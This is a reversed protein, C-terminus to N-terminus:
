VSRGIPASSGDLLRTIVETAQEIDVAHGAIVDSYLFAEGIRVIVYALTDADITLRLSGNAEEQDILRRVAEAMGRQVPGHKSTLIRLAIEPEADLLRRLHVRGHAHRMFAGVLGVIREVGVLGEGAAVARTIEHRTLFWLVEGLLRDRSGVKRYLTARGIRLETALQRMDLRRCDLITALAANFIELPIEEPPEIGEPLLGAATESAEATEPAIV